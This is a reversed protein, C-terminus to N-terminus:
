GILKDEFDVIKVTKRYFRYGGTFVPFHALQDKTVLPYYSDQGRKRNNGCM